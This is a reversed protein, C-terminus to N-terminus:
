GGRERGSGERKGGEERGRGGEERGRVVRRGVRKRKGREERGRGRGERMGTRAALIFRSVMKTTGASDMVLSFDATVANDYAQWMTNRLKLLRGELTEEQSCRNKKKNVSNLFFTGLNWGSLFHVWWLTGSPFATYRTCKRYELSYRGNIGLFGFLGVGYFFFVYWGNAICSECWEIFPSITAENLENSFHQAVELSEEVASAYMDIVGSYLYHLFPMM